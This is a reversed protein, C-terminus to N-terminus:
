KYKFTVWLKNNPVTIESVGDYLSPDWEFRKDTWIKLFYININQKLIFFIILCFNVM